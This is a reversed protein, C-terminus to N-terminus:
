KEGKQLVQTYHHYVRGIFSRDALPTQVHYKFVPGGGCIQSKSMGQERKFEMRVKGNEM